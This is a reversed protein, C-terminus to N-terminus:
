FPVKCLGFMDVQIDELCIKAFRNTKPNYRAAKVILNKGNSTDNRVFALGHEDPGDVGFGLSLVASASLNGSNYPGYRADLSTGEGLQYISLYLDREDITNSSVALPPRLSSFKQGSYGKGIVPKIRSSLSAPFLSSVNKDQKPSTLIVPTIIPLIYSLTGIDNTSLSTSLSAPSWNSAIQNLNAM